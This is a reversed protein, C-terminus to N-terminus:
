EHKYACQMSVINITAKREPTPKEDTSVSDSTVRLQIEPSCAKQALSCPLRVKEKSCRQKRTKSINQTEVLIDAHTGSYKTPILTEQQQIQERNGLYGSRSSRALSPNQQRTQQLQQQQMHKSMSLKQASPGTKPGPCSIFRTHYTSTPKLHNTIYKFQKPKSPIGQHHKSCGMRASRPVSNKIESGLHAYLWEHLRPVGISRSVQKSWEMPQKPHEMRCVCLVNEVRHMCVRPWPQRLNFDEPLAVGACLSRNRTPTRGDDSQPCSREAHSMSYTSTLYLNYAPM